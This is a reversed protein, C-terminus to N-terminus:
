RMLSEYVNMTLDVQRIFSFRERAKRQGAKGMEERKKQDKLLKRIAFALTIPDNGPVLMGDIGNEVIEPIGGVDSAVVPKGMAWAQPIVQSTAEARTSPLVLIDMMAILKPVDKRYGTLIIWDKEGLEQLDRDLYKLMPGDGVLLVKLDPFEEKLSLAAGVLVRQGKWSRLVGVCGVVPDTDGISLEKRIDDINKISEPNFRHLDVGAPISVVHEETCGTANIVLDKIVKGSTIIRNTFRNYLFRTTAANRLPISIHRSRVIPISRIRAPLSFIWHDKSSHCHIIDPRFRKFVKWGVYASLPDLAGKMNVALFDVRSNRCEAELMGGAKCLIMVDHGRKLLEVSEQLIRIEQGGWGNSSETHIIRM